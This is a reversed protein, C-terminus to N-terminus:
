SLYRQTLLTSIDRVDQQFRYLRDPGIDEPVAASLETHLLLIARALDSMPEGPASRALMREQERLLDL